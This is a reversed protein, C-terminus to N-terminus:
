LGISFSTGASVSEVSVGSCDAVIVPLSNKGSSIESGNRSPSRM